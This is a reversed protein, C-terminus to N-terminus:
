ELLVDLWSIPCEWRRLDCRISSDELWIVAKTGNFSKVVGIKGDRQSGQCRVRVRQEKRIKIPAIVEAAGASLRQHQDPSIASQAEPMTNALSPDHHILSSNHNSLPPKPSPQLDQGQQTETTPSPLSPLNRCEPEKSFSKVPQSEIESKLKLQIQFNGDSGDSEDSALTEAMVKGDCAMVIGDSEAALGDSPKPQYLPSSGGSGGNPPEDPPTDNGTIPRPWGDHLDDIRIELGQFYVGKNDRGKSIGELKLQNVCLDHLLPSFRRGSVAKSGTAASFECYSSYLWKNTFQYLNPSDASKERKAVGVYTKASSNHVICSDLWEAMPNTEILSEAKWNTLSRVTNSTNRVLATVEEEPIELAWALLGPLYLKFEADLDRRDEPKVQHIFPLTLRRRELGSTYDGSQVTENAAVIVMCTPTFPKCQQTNKREYRVADGGTIAKLVSVEGGYRESDTILLLRKGFIGATEFRNKELQELTTVATNEAGVLAM